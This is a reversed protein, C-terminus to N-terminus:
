KGDKRAKRARYEARKKMDANYKDPNNKKNWKDRQRGIQDLKEKYRGKDFESTKPDKYRKLIKSFVSEKREAM